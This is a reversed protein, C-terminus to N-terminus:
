KRNKEFWYLFVSAGKEIFEGNKALFAGLVGDGPATFCFFHKNCEIIYLPDGETFKDGERCYPGENPSPGRYFVGPFEAVVVFDKQDYNLGSINVPTEYLSYKLSNETVRTSERGRHIDFCARIADYTAEYGASRSLDIAHYRSLSSPIECPELMVPVIYRHGQPMKNQQEQARRLEMQVNGEKQVSTESMCALFVTSSTIERAITHDWDEGGELSYADMWVNLGKTTLYKYLRDVPQRDEVAYSLFVQM